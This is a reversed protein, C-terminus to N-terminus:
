FTLQIAIYSSFRNAASVNALGRGASFLLHYSHSVDYSGGLNFGPASRDGPREATQQFVEGGLQFAETFQYLLIAGAFWANRGQGGPNIRYGAGGDVIWKGITKDAWVPLFLRGVGNGLGRRADGTPATFIPYISVMPRWGKADEDIVRVKAGLETDGFGAQRGQADWVVDYQPQLHLQLGPAAGYNIDISPLAASLAGRVLTTTLATNIEWGGYEVPVPDDTVFPPGARAPGCTLCGLALAAVLSGCLTNWSTEPM